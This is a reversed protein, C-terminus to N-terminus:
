GVLYVLFLIIQGAVAVAVLRGLFLAMVLTEAHEHKEDIRQSILPEVIFTLLLAGLANLIGSLQSISARYEFFQLAFYFSLFMGVSYTSFVILSFFFTKRTEPHELFLGIAPKEIPATEGGAAKLALFFSRTFKGSKKYIIIVRSYYNILRARQWLVLMGFVASILLSTHTILQYTSTEIGQDVILGMAPMLMVLFFRTGMYISQQISYGLLHNGSKLGSIRALVASLELLQILGYLLPVIFVIM